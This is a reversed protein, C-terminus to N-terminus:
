AQPSKESRNKERPEHNEKAPQTLPHNALTYELLSQRTNLAPDDLVLEVLKKLIQGLVPGEPYGLNMLDHGNLALDKPGFPPKKDLEEQIRRKLRLIGKLQNPYAGGKKDAIRLDVLKFILDKGIKHIFRRIAKETYFSKTEFMHNHVMSLVNETDIGLMNARYKKMWKRAMRTSVIQHGYFTIRKTKENFGVTYPKGIDHFLSAFMIELDGPSDLDSCTRSADLVKMTHDFVDLSNKNPQEVGITKELEPFVFHLLGTDRMLYFGASPREARFLKGVEDIVREPSVTEIKPAHQKMASLTEPEISLEFRAAFQVARLLRLPDEVFSETFVQRLVKAQLDKQGGFPDLLERTKVERAMANITFDRRQLDLEVPLKEDFRVEFDRHHPGTSKETRPLAIDFHEDGGRPKFKLVGFSKGVEHVQGQSGLLRILAEFPVQTVLLDKDKHPHGMLEDRVTGGVEYVRGGAQYIAEIFSM